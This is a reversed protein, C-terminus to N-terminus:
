PKAAPQTTPPIQEFRKRLTQADSNKGLTELLECCQLVVKERFAAEDTPRLRAVAAEIRNQCDSSRNGAQLAAAATLMVGIQAKRLRLETYLDTAMEAATCARDAQDLKLLAEAMGGLAMASGWTDGLPEALSLSKEFHALAKAPDAMADKGARYEKQGERFRKQEESSWSAFSAAYDTFTTGGFARDALRAYDLGKRFSELAALGSGPGGKEIMSLGGEFYDDIFPLVQDDNRRFVQIIVEADTSSNWKAMRESTLGEDASMTGCLLVARVMLILM